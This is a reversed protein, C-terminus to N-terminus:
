NKRDVIRANDRMEEHLTSPRTVTGQVYSLPVSAFSEGRYRLYGYRTNTNGNTTASRAEIGLQLILRHADNFTKNYVLSNRFSYDRNMANEIQVLGGFPLQSALEEVSNPLVVGYEYGRTQTVHFSLETAYTKIESSSVNYSFLGQYELDTFIKWRLDVTSGFTKTANNNGTNDLENQINYNYKNNSTNVTSYKGSKEHYFFTGDENYMPITRTTNYAYNFPSVGYAFGSTERVSGNLLMNLLLNEGLRFTTNSSATFTLMDNGIAEGKQQQLNFSNRSMVKETGGSISINHGHNFSNRFLLAFWDTNQREMQRYEAILEDYTIEKNQLRQILGGYGIPMVEMTYSERALYLEKSFQMAEQSNMLDYLAYRPRQGISFNGSYSVAIDGARAKKTTIVIVGNAAQSGYIATASADKLVTITEIDLPNLWAIANSAIERMENIDASMSMNNDPVPLPDRQIVGDVVWVPEQNGLLTSTGRVRIKPSSGVQGSRTIVSMGPIVGQLMQDISTEGAVYVDEGRVVTIAGVYDGKRFVSYGTVVMEEIAKIEEKMVVELTTEGKWAIEQKIMGVFSFVLVIDDRRPISLIFEGKIDASVGVTTGKVQVTVGPLAGGREDQVKGKLIVMEQQSAAKRIIVADGSIESTLGTGKLCQELIEKVTLEKADINLGHVGDIERTGYMFVFGTRKQLDWIVEELSANEVRLSLKSDQSYVTASIPLCSLLVLMIKLKM